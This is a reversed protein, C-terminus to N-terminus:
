KSPPRPNFGNAAPQMSSERRPHRAEYALAAGYAVLAVGVSRGPSPRGLAVAVIVVFAPYKVLLVPFSWVTESLLPRALGYLFIFIVDLGAVVLAPKLGGTAGAFAVAGIALSVTLVKFPLVDHRVLVREPHTTRDRARDALDDWLRFQVVLLTMLGGAKFPAWLVAGSALWWAALTLLLLVPGFLRLRLRERFYEVFVAIM